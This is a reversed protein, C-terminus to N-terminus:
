LKSIKVRTADSRELYELIEPVYLGSPKLVDNNIEIFPQNNDLRIKIKAIKRKRSPRDLTWVPCWQLHAVKLDKLDVNLIDNLEVAICHNIIVKLLEFDFSLQSSNSSLLNYRLM